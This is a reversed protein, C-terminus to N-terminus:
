QSPRGSAAGPGGPPPPSGRSTPAPAARPRSGSRELARVMRDIGSGYQFARKPREAIESPVGVRRAIRRLPAKTPTGEAVRDPLPLALAAEIVRPDLFPSGLRRGLRRGVDLAAPWERDRLAALDDRRRDALARGALGRFHAYGFFLEDAGQGCLVRETPAAEAAIATAVLVSVAPGPLRDLVDNWRELAERVRAEPVVIARHRLGLTAAGDRGASLDPAGDTGITLLLPDAPRALEGVIASDVGGSFLVTVGGEGELLEGASRRLAEELARERSPDVPDSTPRPSGARSM